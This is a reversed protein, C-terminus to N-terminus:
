SHTPIEVIGAMTDDAQRRLSPGASRPAPPPSARRISPSPSRWPAPGVGLKGFIGETDPPTSTLTVMTTIPGFSEFVRGKARFVGGVTVDFDIVHDMDTDSITMSGSGGSDLTVDLAAAPVASLLCAIAVLATHATM